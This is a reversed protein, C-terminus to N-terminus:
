SKYKEHSAVLLKFMVDLPLGYDDSIQINDNM